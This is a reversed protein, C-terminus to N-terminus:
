GDWVEADSRSNTEYRGRLPADSVGTDRVGVDAGVAVITTGAVGVREAAGTDGVV